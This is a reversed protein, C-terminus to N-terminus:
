FKFDVLEVPPLFKADWHSTARSAPPSRFLWSCDDEQADIPVSCCAISSESTKIPIRSARSPRIVKHSRVSLVTGLLIINKIDMQFIWFLAHYRIDLLPRSISCRVWLNEPVSAIINLTGSLSERTLRMKWTAYNANFFSTNYPRELPITLM